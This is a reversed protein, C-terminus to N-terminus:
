GGVIIVVVMTSTRTTHLHQLVVLHWRRAEVLEVGAGVLAGEEPELHTSSTSTTSITTDTTDTDTDTPPTCNTAPPHPGGAAQQRSRTAHESPPPQVASSGQANRPPPTGIVCSIGEGRNV